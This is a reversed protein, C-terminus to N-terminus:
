IFQKELFGDVFIQPLNGYSIHMPDQPFYSVESFIGSRLTALLQSRLIPVADPQTFISNVIGDLVLLEGNPNDFDTAPLM